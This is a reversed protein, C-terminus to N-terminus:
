QSLEYIKADTGMSVGVLGLVAGRAISQHLFEPAANLELQFRMRAGQASLIRVQSVLNLGQLYAMCRLYDRNNSVNVIEVSELWIGQETPDISVSASVRDAAANVGEALAEHLDDDRINWSWEREPAAMNWRTQWRGNRRSASVLIVGDFDLAQSEALAIDTFGGWIEQLWSIDFEEDTSELAVELPLGRQRATDAIIFALFEDDSSILRRENDLEIAMILQFRPRDVPWRPLGLYVLASNAASNDFQAQMRLESFENQDDIPITLQQYTVSQLSSRARVGLSEPTAEEPLVRQGSLKVLVNALANGLFRNQTERAQDPVAVYATYLSGVEDGLSIASSLCLCLCALLQRKCSKRHQYAPNVSNAAAPM